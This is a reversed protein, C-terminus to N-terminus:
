PKCTNVFERLLSIDLMSIGCVVANECDMAIFNSGNVDTREFYGKKKLVSMAGPFNGIERKDIYFLSMLSNHYNYMVYAVATGKLYCLRAGILKSDRINENKVPLTVPFDFKGSFYGTIDEPRDAEVAPGIKNDLYESHCHDIALVLDNNEAPTYILIFTITVCAAFASILYRKGSKIWFFGTNQKNNISSIAKEWLENFEGKEKVSVENQLFLSVIGKEVEQEREFRRNCQECLSLHEVVELNTKSDLESDMFLEIYHKVEECKM